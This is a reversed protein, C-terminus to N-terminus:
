ETLPSGVPSLFKHAELTRVTHDAVAVYIFVLLTFSGNNPPVIVELVSSAM